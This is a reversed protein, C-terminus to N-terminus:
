ALAGHPLNMDSGERGVSAALTRLSSHFEDLEVHCTRMYRAGDAAFELRGHLVRQNNFFLAEGGAVPIVVQHAPDFLLRQLKRLARYFPRILDEPLDAPGIARDLHRVGAIEGDEDLSFAPARMRFDRGQEDLRRYFTIPLSSLLRFAEPDEDRLLTGARFGDALTSEGGRTAARIFHFCTVSPPAQRYPEDTHPDLKVNLDGYVLAEPKHVFDYDRLAELMTLRAVPDARCRAFHAEPVRGEIEKGWLRAKWRRRAREAGSNCRGRLWGPDFRSRHGDHSWVVAIRGGAERRVEAVAVDNPIETLRLSRIGSTYAGCEGCQCAHRLWVAHYRSQHGDGWRVAIRDGHNDIGTISFRPDSDGAGM